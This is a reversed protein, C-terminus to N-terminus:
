RCAKSVPAVDPILAKGGARLGLSCIYINLWSGYSMSRAYADLMVPLDRTAADLDDLHAAMTTGVTSMSRVARTVSPAAVRVIEGVTSGLSEVALIAADIQDADDALGDVLTSLGAVVHEVDARHDDFTAMVTTANAVVSTIVRDRDALHQTLGAVEQTLSAVVSGQGQLAAVLQEALRNVDAPELTDFLPKFANFMETLDLAPATRDTGIVTDIPQRTGPRKTPELALYQQGLLNLYSIRAITDTRVPQDRDVSFTVRAVDGALRRSEVRGVRVGAMRVEDGPGLGSADTFEATFERRDGQGQALTNVVLSTLLLSVAVFGVLGAIEGPVRRLTRM